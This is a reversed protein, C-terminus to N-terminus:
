VAIARSLHEFFDLVDGNYFDIKVLMDKIQRQEHVPAIKIHEIVVGLPIYNPGSPGDVTFVEETDLAKEEVFMDLWKNM